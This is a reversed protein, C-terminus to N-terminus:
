FDDEDEFDEEFEDEEFDDDDFDIEEINDIKYMEVKKNSSDLPVICFGGNYRIAYLKGCHGCKLIFEPKNGLAIWNKTDKVINSCINARNFMILDCECSICICARNVIGVSNNKGYTGVMPKTTCLLISEVYGEVTNAYKLSPVNYRIEKLFTSPDAKRYITRNRHSLLLGPERYENTALIAAKVGDQFQRFDIIRGTQVLLISPIRLITGIKNNDKSEYIAVSVLGLEESQKNTLGKLPGVNNYNINGVFMYKNELFDPCEEVSTLTTMARGYYFVVSSGDIKVDIGDVRSFMDKDPMTSKFVTGLPYSM